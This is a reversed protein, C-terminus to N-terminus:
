DEQTMFFETNEFRPINLSGAKLLKPIIFDLDHPVDLILADHLVFLPCIRDILGSSQLRRIIDGFGFLAVDVATSQIFYNLLKYPEMNDFMIPRGYYNNLVGRSSKFYESAIIEKAEHIQFHEDVMDIIDQPYDVISDLQNVITKDQAGYLRSIIATKIANRPVDIGLDDLVSAYIDQPINQNEMFSMLVRPELSAYDLSCISGNNGYRSRLLSKRYLKKVLLISPGSKVTLRGTSSSTRDYVVRSAFGHAPAFSRINANADDSTLAQMFNQVNISAPVLADFLADHEKFYKDYYVTDTDLFADKIQKIYASVETKYIDAPMVDIWPIPTGREVLGYFSNKFRKPPFTPLEFGYLRAIKLFDKSSTDLVGEPLEKVKEVTGNQKCYLHFPTNFADANIVFEV